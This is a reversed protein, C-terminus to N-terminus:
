ARKGPSGKPAGGVVGAGSQHGSQHRRPGRSARLPTTPM